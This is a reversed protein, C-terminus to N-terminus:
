LTYLIHKNNLYIFHFPQSCLWKGDLLHEYIPFTNMFWVSFYECVFFCIFFYTEFPRVTMQLLHTAQM